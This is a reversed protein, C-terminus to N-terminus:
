LLSKQFLEGRWFKKENIKKKPLAPKLKCADKGKRAAM